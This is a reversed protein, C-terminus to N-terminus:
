SKRFAFCVTSLDELITSHKAPSGPTTIHLCLQASLPMPNASSLARHPTNLMKGIELVQHAM